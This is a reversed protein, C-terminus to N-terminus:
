RNSRTSPSTSRRTSASRNRSSSLFPYRERADDAATRSRQPPDAEVRHAEIWSDLTSREVRVLRGRRVHELEGVRIMRRITSVSVGLLEAAATVDLLHDSM